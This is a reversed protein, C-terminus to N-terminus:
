GQRAVALLSDLDPAVGALLAAGLVEHSQRENLEDPWASVAQATIGLAAALHSQRNGFLKAAQAKTLTIKEM